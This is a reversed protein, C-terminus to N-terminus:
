ENLARDSIPPDSQRIIRWKLQFLCVTCVFQVCFSSVFQECAAQLLARHCEMLSADHRRWPRLCVAATQSYAAHPADALALRIGSLTGDCTCCRISAMAPIADVLSRLGLCIALCLAIIYNCCKMTYATFSSFIYATHELMHLHSLSRIGGGSAEQHKSKYVAIRWSPSCEIVAASRIGLWESHSRSRITVQQPQRDGPTWPLRDAFRWCVTLLCAVAQLEGRSGCFSRM